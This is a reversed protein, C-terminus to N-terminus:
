AVTGPTRDEPQLLLGHTGASEVGGPSSKAANNVMEGDCELPLRRDADEGQVDHAAAERERYEEDGVDGVVGLLKALPATSDNTDEHEEDHVAVGIDLLDEHPTAVNAAEGDDGVPLRMNADEGQLM